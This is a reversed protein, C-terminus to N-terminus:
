SIQEILKEAILRPAPKHMSPRARGRARAVQFQRLGEQVLASTRPIEMQIRASIRQATIGAEVLDNGCGLSGAFLEGRAEVCCFTQGSIVSTV